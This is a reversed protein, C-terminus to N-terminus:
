SEPALVARFGVDDQRFEPNLGQRAGLRLLPRAGTLWSGGRVPQWNAGAKFRDGCWQWVNGSIDQLGLANPPYSGVPATRPFKDSYDPVTDDAPLGSEAGAYNGAGAPPPWAAGWPFLEPARAARAEPLTGPPEDSLGALQSWEADTPLRYGWGAPLLNADRERRTLWACFAADGASVGVVPHTPGQAFGPDKWTRGGAKRKLDATLSYMGGTADYGTADVFAAFDGVRVPWVGALLTQDLAAFRM